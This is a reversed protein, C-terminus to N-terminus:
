YIDGLVKKLNDKTLLRPNNKIREPNFGKEVILEVDKLSLGLERLKTKLGIGQMLRKIKDKGELPNLVGLMECIEFINKKVYEEGRSDLCDEGVKSNYVLMEGLTLSVAHGHIIQFYSTIPYAISHCATTKSINIAKGALNSAKMVKEKAERLGSNVAQELNGVLLNISERAYKKSKETSNICWYSEIAQGLADMGTSATVKRPLSVTLEPDCIVYNPLTVNVDGKSQKEKGIYYVIFYTAESGSGATTPIAVLPTKRETKEYYFLKIAKATDIVSGGGVAVIFDYNEKEFIEFGKQIDEIKPNPSFDWFRNYNQKDLVEKAGSVEFSNKGSVLFIKKGGVIEDLKEIAGFGFYEQQPM